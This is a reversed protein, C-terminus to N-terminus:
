FQKKMGTNIGQTRERHGGAGAPRSAGHGPVVTPGGDGHGPVGGPGGGGHGPVGTPGGDQPPKPPRPPKPPNNSPNPPYYGPPYYTNGTNYGGGVQNYGGTNYGGGVQNYTNQQVQPDPCCNQEIKIVIVTTDNQVSIKGSNEKIGHVIDRTPATILFNGCDGKMMILTYSGIELVWAFGQFDKTPTFFEMKGTKPNYGSNLYEGKKLNVEKPEVNQGLFWNVYNGERNFTLTDGLGKQLVEALAQQYAKGKQSDELMLNKIETLSPSNYNKFVAERQASGEKPLLTLALLTGTILYVTRMKGAVEDKIAEPLKKFKETILQKINLLSKNTDRFSEPLKIGEPVKTNSLDNGSDPQNKKNFLKEFIKM